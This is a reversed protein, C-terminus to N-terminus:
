VIFNMSMYKLNFATMGNIWDDDGDRLRLCEYAWGMAENFLLWSPWKGGNERGGDDDDNAFESADTSQVSNGFVTL